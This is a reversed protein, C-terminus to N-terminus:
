GKVRAGLGISWLFGISGQFGMFLFTTKTFSVTFTSTSTRVVVFFTIFGFSGM